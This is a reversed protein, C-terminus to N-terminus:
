YEIKLDQVEKDTLGAKEKAMRTVTALKERTEVTDNELLAYVAKKVMNIASEKLRNKAPATTANM